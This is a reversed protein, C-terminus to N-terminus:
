HTCFQQKKSLRDGQANGLQRNCLAYPIVGLLKKIITMM